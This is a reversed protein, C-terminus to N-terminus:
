RKSRSATTFVTRDPQAPVAVAKGAMAARREAWVHGLVAAMVIAGGILTPAPPVEGFALWVWVPALPADLAGLLAAEAAPVLRAGLTLLLLGLGLQTVGFLALNVLDAPGAAAPAAFPWAVLSTLFPSLCAAATMPRDKYRRIVVMLLAVSLTMAFALLDGYLNGLRAAGGVMVVVGAFAAASAVLTGRSAREGPWIRAIGATVFPASAYVIAVDAVTTHRFAHIFFIMGATSLAAVALGQWGMAKIAGVLGARYQWVMVGAVFLGAFIGRWFLLTWVDLPILRTFFGATSYAVASGLVLAMGLWHQRREGVTM